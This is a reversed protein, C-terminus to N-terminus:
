FYKNVEINSVEIFNQMASDGDGAILVRPFCVFRVSLLEGMGGFIKAIYTRGSLVGDRPACWLSLMAATSFPLGVPALVSSPGAAPWYLKMWNADTFVTACSNARGNAHLTSILRFARALWSQFGLRGCLRSNKKERITLYFIHRPACLHPFNPM